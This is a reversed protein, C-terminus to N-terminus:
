SLTAFYLVLCVGLILALMTFLLLCGARNSERATAAPQNINGRRGTLRDYLWARTADRRQEADALMEADLRRREATTMGGPHRKQIMTVIIRAMVALGIAALILGIIALMATFIYDNVANVGILENM